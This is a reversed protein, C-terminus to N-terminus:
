RNGALTTEEASHFIDIIAPLYPPPNTRLSDMYQYTRNFVFVNDFVPSEGLILSGTFDLSLHSHINANRNYDKAYTYGNPAFFVAQVIQTAVFTDYVNVPPNFDMAVFTNNIIINNKAILIAQHATSSSVLGDGPFTGTTNLHESELNGTIRISDEAVFLIQGHIKGQLVMTGTCYYVHDANDESVFGDVISDGNRDVSGTMDDANLSKENYGPPYIDVVGDGGLDFEPGFVCIMHGNYPAASATVHALNKYYNMEASTVQPFLLEPIKVPRNGSTTDLVTVSNTVTSDPTSSPDAPDTYWNCTNVFEAALVSTTPPPNTGSNFNLQYAYVKGAQINSPYAVTLDGRIAAFYDTVNSIRAYTHLRSAYQRGNLTRTTSTVVYYGNVGDFPVKEAKYEYNVETRPGQLYGGEIEQTPAGFGPAYICNSWMSIKGLVQHLASESSRYAKSMENFHVMNKSSQDSSKQIAFVLISAVVALIVAIPLM